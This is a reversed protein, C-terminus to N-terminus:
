KVSQNRLAHSYIHALLICAIVVLLCPQWQVDNASQDRPSVNDLSSLYRVMPRAGDKEPQENSDATTSKIHVANRNAAPAANTRWQHLQAHMAYGVRLKVRLMGVFVCNHSQLHSHKWMTSRNIASRAGEYLRRCRATGTYARMVGTCVGKNGVVTM